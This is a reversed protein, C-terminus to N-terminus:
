AQGVHQGEMNANVTKDPGPTFTVADPPAAAPEDGPNHSERQLTSLTDLFLYLDDISGIKQRSGAVQVSRLQDHQFLDEALSAAFSCMTEFQAPDTWLHPSPDVFLAFAQHHEQETERVQLSGLKASAKWHIRRLPDGSRYGRVHILEVGEGKQRHHGYLWRRGAKSASFQYPIRAPWVTVKREYSDRITKKLFGFPYRSLLGELRITEEGRQRPVFEWLLRTKEHSDLRSNLFLEQKVQSLVASLTFMLDYSPLWRKTNEIELYVPSEEDVRYHRGAEVRWRCGKFNIWSLLGSVLLTSLMMSLGLYLINQGTNFAATGVGITIVILMTGTKTPVTRHGRPPSILQVLVRVTNGVVSSGAFYGPDAWDVKPATTDRGSQSILPM